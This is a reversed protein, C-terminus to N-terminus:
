GELVSDHWLQLIQDAQYKKANIKSNESYKMLLDSSQALELISSALINIKQDEVLIGNYRDEIVDSPGFPCDYSIIPLGFSQAEILVMPLGEYKSSMVFFDSNLYVEKVDSTLGRLHVNLLSYEEIYAKLLEKQEGEGYINLTWEPLKTAILEWAKLLHIYNKQDTLRGITVINKTLPKSDAFIEFPSFNPIVEVNNHIQRFQKGDNATLAVVQHIRPYCLKSMLQVAKPRSVFSIHELSVIKKRQNLPLLSCLLTLKGMNHIIIKDYNNNKLHQKLKKYFDFFNGDLVIVNVHNSVSYACTSLTSERNVIAVQHAGIGAVRNALEVAVRESGSKNKLSNILFLIKM